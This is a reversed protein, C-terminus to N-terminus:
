PALLLFHESVITLLFARPGGAATQKQSRAAQKQTTFLM